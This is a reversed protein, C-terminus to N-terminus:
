ESIRYFINKKLISSGEMYTYRKPMAVGTKQCMDYTTIKNYAPSYSEYDPVVVNVYEKIEQKHLSMQRTSGIPILVDPKEKKIILLLDDYFKDECFPSHVYHSHLHRSYKNWPLICEDTGVVIHGEKVLAYVAAMGIKWTSGTVLIKM